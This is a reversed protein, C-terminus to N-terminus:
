KLDINYIWRYLYRKAKDMDYKWVWKKGTDEFVGGKGVVQDGPISLTTLTPNNALMPAYSIIENFSLSTEVHALMQKLLGPYKTAPMEKAKKFLCNLVKQQRLARFDEGDIKRIRSYIMAQGGDLHVYGSQELHNVNFNEEDALKNLAKREKETIHIDVGGMYDIVKWLQYLTVSVYDTINLGFLQNLTKVALPAGGYAYAANIKNHDHGDIPVWSDRLISTLKITNDNTNVTLIIISDSRGSVAKGGTQTVRSRSDIGFLAINVIGKPLSQFIETDIGLDEHNDPLYGQKMDGFYYAYASLIGTSLLSIILVTSIIINLITIRNKLKKKTKKQSYSNLSYENDVNLTRKSSAKGTSYSYLDEGNKSSSSINEYDNNKM